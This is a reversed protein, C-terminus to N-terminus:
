DLNYMHRISESLSRYVDKFHPHDVLLNEQEKLTQTDNRVAPGTQLSAPNKHQIRLATDLIMPMLLNFDIDSEQLLQHAIAYLHNTFNNVFVAALHTKGKQYDTLAYQVDSLLQALQKALLADHPELTNYVVPFQQQEPLANKTVSFLCWLCIIHESISSLVNLPVAGAGYLVYKNPLRLTESLAYLANDPVGLIYLDADRNLVSYDHVAECDLRKALTLAHDPNPSLVQQITHGAEKFRVGYFTAINGSGIIVINM